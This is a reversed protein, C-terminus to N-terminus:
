RFFLKSGKYRVTFYIVRVLRIFASVVFVGMAISGAIGVANAFQPLFAHVDGGVLTIMTNYMYGGPVLPIVGIVLYMNVPVHLRRAMLESYVSVAAASFFYCLMESTGSLEYSVFILQTITAGIAATIMHRLKINFQVGFAASAILSYLCPLTFQEMININEM